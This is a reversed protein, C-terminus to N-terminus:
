VSPLYGWECVLHSRPDTAVKAPFWVLHIQKKFPVHDSLLPGSCLLLDAIPHCLLLFWPGPWLWDLLGKAETHLLTQWSSYYMQWVYFMVSTKPLSCRHHLYSNSLYCIVHQTQGSTYIRGTLFPHAREKEHSNWTVLLVSHLQTNPRHSLHKKYELLRTNEANGATTFYAYDFANRPPIGCCM